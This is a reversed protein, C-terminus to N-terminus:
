HDHRLSSVAPIVHFRRRCIVDPDKREGGDEEGDREEEGIQDADLSNIGAHLHVDLPGDHLVHIFRGGAEIVSFHSLAAVEQCPVLSIELRIAPGQGVDAHVFRNQLGIGIGARERRVRDLGEDKMDVVFLGGHSPCNLEPRFLAQFGRQRRNAGAM